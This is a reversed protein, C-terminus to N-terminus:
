SERLRQGARRGSRGKHGSGPPGKRSRRRVLTRSALRQQPCHILAKRRALAPPRPSPNIIRSCRILIYALYKISITLQIISIAPFRQTHNNLCLISCCKLLYTTSISSFTTADKKLVLGSPAQMSGQLPLDAFYNLIILGSPSNHLRILTCLM